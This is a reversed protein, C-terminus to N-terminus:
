GYFSTESSFKPQDYLFLFIVNEKHILMPTHTFKHHQEEKRKIKKDRKLAYGNEKDDLHSVKYREWMSRMWDTM